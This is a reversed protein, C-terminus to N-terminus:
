PKKTDSKLLNSNSHQWLFDHRKESLLSPPYKGSATMEATHFKEFNATAEVVARHGACKMQSSLVDLKQATTIRPAATIDVLTVGAKM